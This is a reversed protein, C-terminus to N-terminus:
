ELVECRLDHPAGRLVQPMSHERSGVGVAKLIVRADEGDEIRGRFLSKCYTHEFDIKKLLEPLDFSAEAFMPELLGSWITVFDGDKSLYLNLRLFDHLGDVAAHNCYEHVDVSAPFQFDRLRVFGFDEPNFPVM